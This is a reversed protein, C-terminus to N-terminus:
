ANAAKQYVTDLDQRANAMKQDRHEDLSMVNSTDQAQDFVPIEPTPQTHNVTGQSEHVLRRRQNHYEDVGPVAELKRFATDVTAWRIEPIRLANLQGEREPNGDDFM